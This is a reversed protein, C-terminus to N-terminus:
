NTYIKGQHQLPHNLVKTKTEERGENKEERWMRKEEVREGESESEREREREREEGEGRGM